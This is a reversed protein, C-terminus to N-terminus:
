STLKVAEVDCFYSFSDSDDDYDNDDGDGDAEGDSAGSDDSLDGATVHGKGPLYCGYRRRAAQRMRQWQDEGILRRAEQKAEARSRWVSMLEARGGGFQNDHWVVAFLMNDVRSSRLNANAFLAAAADLPAGAAVHLVRATAADLSAASPISGRLRQQQVKHIDEGLDDCSMHVTVCGHKDVSCIDDNVDEYALGTDALVGEMGSDALAVDNAAQATTYIGQVLAAADGPGRGEWFLTYVYEASPKGELAASEAQVSERNWGVLVQLARVALSTSIPTQPSPRSGGEHHSSKLHKSSHKPM